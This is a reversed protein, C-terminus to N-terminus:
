EKRVARAPRRMYLFFEKSGGHYPSPIHRILRWDERNTEVWERFERHRIHPWLSWRNTNSSCIAVLRQASGFLDDMYREFYSNKTLHFIVDLSIAMDAKPGRKSSRHIGPRYLRFKKTSDGEFQNRCLEVAKESTDLGLYKPCDILGVQYGDGCGLDVISEVNFDEIWRNIVTAKYAAVEQRSGRGSSGGARYRHDWYDDRWGYLLHLWGRKLRALSRELFMSPIM